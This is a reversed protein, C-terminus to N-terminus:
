VKQSVDLYATLAVVILDTHTRREEFSRARLLEYLEVPIWVSVQRRSQADTDEETKVRAGEVYAM